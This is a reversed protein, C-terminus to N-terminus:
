LEIRSRLGRLSANMADIRWKYERLTHALSVLNEAVIETGTKINAAPPEQLVVSQLKDSIGSIAAELEGLAKDIESLWHPVQAHADRAAKGLDAQM